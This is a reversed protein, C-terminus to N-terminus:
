QITDSRLLFSSRSNASSTWFYAESDAVALPKLFLDLVCLRPIFHVSRQERTIAMVDLPSLKAEIHFLDLVRVLWSQLNTSPLDGVARHRNGLFDSSSAKLIASPVLSKSHTCLLLLALNFTFYHRCCGDYEQDHSRQIPNQRLAQGTLLRRIHFLASFEELLVARSAVHTM